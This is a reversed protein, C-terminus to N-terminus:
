VIFDIIKQLEVTLRLSRLTDFINVALFNTIKAAKAHAM